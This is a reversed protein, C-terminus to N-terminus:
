RILFVERAHSQSVAPTVRASKMFRAEDVQVSVVHGIPIDAPVIGGDGSSVVADGPRVDDERKLYMLILPRRRGNGQVIGVGRVKGDRVAMAGVGSGADTLLTITSSLASVDSVQGLLGEATRAVMGIYAGRRTGRAVTVTDFQPSTPLSIVEAPLLPRHVKQVFELAARLREAESSASAQKQNELTLRAIEQRLRANETALRKGAFFWSWVASASVELRTAAIQFPFILTRVAGLIPDPRKAQQWRNHLIGVGLAAALLVALSVAPAVSSVRRRYNDKRGRTRLRTRSRTRM